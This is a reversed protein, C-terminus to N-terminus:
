KVILNRRKRDTTAYLAALIIVGFTIKQWFVDVGVINMGNQILTVLLVGAFTKVLSGRGGSLSTGGLAVAAIATLTLSDGVTPIGSRLKAAFFIGALAALAGMLVFVCIKTFDVNFGVIRATRENGGIAYVARGFKMKKEVLLLIFFVAMAIIFPMPIIGLKIKYWAVYGVYDRGIQHPAGKAVILALSQWISMTGFTAIFSPIKLKVYLVGSVFGAAAGFLIATAVSFYGMDGLYIAFLVCACSTMAGVSLDISGILLVFTMGVSLLLLPSIDSLINSVNIPSVFVPNVISIAILLVVAVIYGAYEKGVNIVTSGGRRIMAEM